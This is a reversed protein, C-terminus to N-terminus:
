KLSQWRNQARVRLRMRGLSQPPLASVYDDDPVVNKLSGDISNRVSRSNASIASISPNSTTPRWSTRLLRVPPQKGLM